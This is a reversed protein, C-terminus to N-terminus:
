SLTNIEDKDDRIELFTSHRLVGGETKEMYEIRAIKGIIEERDIWFQDRQKDSFGSGVRSIIGNEDQVSIAGCRHANRSGETGLHVDVIMFDGEDLPKLKMWDDNREFTYRGAPNKFILGEQGSARVEKYYNKLDDYNDFFKHELIYPRISNLLLMENYREEYVKEVLRNEFERLSFTDFIKLTMLNENSSKKKFTSLTNQFSKGVAESDFCRGPFFSLIDLLEPDVNLIPKGNRSLVEVERNPHVIVFCRVGDVKTQAYGPGKFDKASNMHNAAHLEFTKFSGPYIKLFSGASVGLKYRRFGEVVGNVVNLQTQTMESSIRKLEKGDGKRLFVRIKEWDVGPGNVTAKLTSVGFNLFPDYSIIFLEKTEESILKLAEVKENRGKANSISLLESNIKQTIKDIESPNQEDSGLDLTNLM